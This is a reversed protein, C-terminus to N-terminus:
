GWFYDSAPLPGWGVDNGYYSPGAPHAQWHDPYLSSSHPGIELREMERHYQEREARIKALAVEVHPDWSSVRFGPCTSKMALLWWPLLAAILIIGLAEM